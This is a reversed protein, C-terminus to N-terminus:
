FGYKCEKELWDVEVFVGNNVYMHHKSYTDNGQLEELFKESKPWPIFYYKIFQEEPSRSKMLTEFDM